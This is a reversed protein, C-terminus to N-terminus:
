AYVAAQSDILDSFAYDYHKINANVYKKFISEKWPHSNDPMTRIKKKTTSAVQTSQFDFNRSVREHEPILVLTYLKEHVCTLLKGSLTSIVTVPTGKYFYVPSDYDDVLKYYNNKYQISHGNDIKRTSIVALTHDIIETSPQEEFVSKINDLPIAFKDNFKKIYSNLFENAQNLTTIGKLRLEITLRSQLTQFLREVRGKAQPVSTAKIEVGLQHCAYSFQTFTDEEISPSKKQKYEFVTRRDTYFMYPIGHTSLIQLFVQYYGHLTEQHDFYAGVISGTADDIAVHLQSKSDGFWLHVSADMQLMEGFYACRPRRPHTEDIDLIKTQLLAVKKTSNTKKQLIKLEKKV